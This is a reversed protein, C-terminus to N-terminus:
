GGAIPRIAVSNSKLIDDAKHLRKGAKLKQNTNKEINIHGSEFLKIADEDRLVLKSGKTIQDISTVKVEQKILGFVLSEILFFSYGDKLKKEILERMHEEHEESWTITVDGAENLLIISSM